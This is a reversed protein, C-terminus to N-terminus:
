NSLRIRNAAGTLHELIEDLQGFSSYEMIVKGREGHKGAPDITVRMGLADTLDKELALTNVDKPKKAKKASKSKPKGSVEAVLAETQRVSLDGAIVKKAIEDANDLTILARAHGVSLEGRELCSLAGDSLALLRTMNAIHSRSKGLAEALQAQTHDYDDLLKKYGQAEDVPNLDERQLNEILAIELAQADDMERIIVPVEHLQAVQAARWRREGAIIEYHGDVSPNLRVLIPQLLGHTKISEALQAISAEDFSQRPQAFGPELLEVGVFNRGGSSIGGGSSVNAVGKSALPESAVVADSNTAAFAEEEDEFLANLGRGLGRAKPNPASEEEVAEGESSSTEMVEGAVEAVEEVESAEVLNSEDPMDKSNVTEDSM